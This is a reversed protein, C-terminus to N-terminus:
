WPLKEKALKWKKKRKSLHERLDDSTRCNLINSEFYGEDDYIEKEGNDDNIFPDEPMFLEDAGEDDESVYYEASYFGISGEGWESTDSEYRFGVLKNHIKLLMEEGNDDIISYEIGAKELSDFADQDIGSGAYYKNSETNLFDIQKEDIYKEM